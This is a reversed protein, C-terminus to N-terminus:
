RGDWRILDFNKEVGGKAGVTVPSRRVTDAFTSVGDVAQTERRNVAVPKDARNLSPWARYGIPCCLIGYCQDARDGNHGVRLLHADALGQHVMQEVNGIAARCVGHHHNAVRFIVASEKPEGGIGRHAPVNGAGNLPVPQEGADASRASDHGNPCQTGIWGKCPAGRSGLAIPMGM